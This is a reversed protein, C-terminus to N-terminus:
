DDTFIRDILVSRQLELLDNITQQGLPVSRKQSNRVSTSAAILTRQIQVKEVGKLLLEGFAMIARGSVVGLDMTTETRISGSIESVSLLDAETVLRSMNTLRDFRNSDM